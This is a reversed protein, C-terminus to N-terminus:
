GPTEWADPALLYGKGWVTKIRYPRSLDDGLKKRLRSILMDTSRDFGDYEIGRMERCIHDRAVATGASQALMWLLDFENTSLEIVRDELTAARSLLDITLAGFALKNENVSSTASVSRTQRRLLAEIRALLVRPKVPKAVYDDAGLELGLVEDMEEDRATMMLIPRQYFTRAERCIDFGSRGPLMIDLVVFDPTENKIAQVALDGRAIVKVGYGHETLYDSFWLALSADDEVLLIQKLENAKNM